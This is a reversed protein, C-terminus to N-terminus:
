KMRNHVIRNIASEIDKKNWSAPCKTIMEALEDVTDPYDQPRPKPLEEKSKFFNFDPSSPRVKKPEIEIVKGDIVIRGEFDAAVDINIAM